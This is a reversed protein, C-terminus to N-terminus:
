LGFISALLSRQHALSWFGMGMLIFGLTTNLQMPPLSARLQILGQIDFAWGIIVLLSMAILLVSGLLTLSFM